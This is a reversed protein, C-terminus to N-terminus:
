LVGDEKKARSIQEEIRRLTETCQHVQLLRYRFVLLQRLTWTPHAAKAWDMFHAVAAVASDHSAFTEPCRFRAAMASDSLARTQGHLRAPLLALAVLAACSWAPLARRM